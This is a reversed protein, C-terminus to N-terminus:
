AYGPPGGVPVETLTKRLGRPRREKARWWRLRWTAQTVQAMGLGDKGVEAQVAFLWM